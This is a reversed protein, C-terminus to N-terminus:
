RPKLLDAIEMDRVLKAREALRSKATKALALLHQFEPRHSAFRELADIPLGMPRNIFRNEHNM